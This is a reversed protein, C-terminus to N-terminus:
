EKVVEVPMSEPTLVPESGDVSMTKELRVAPMPSVAGGGVSKTTWWLGAIMLLLLAILVMVGLYWTVPKKGVLLRLLLALVVAIGIIWGVGVAMEPYFLKWWATSSMFSFSYVEGPLLNQRYRNIVGGGAMDLWSPGIMKTAVAPVAMDAQSMAVENFRESWNAPGQQRDRVYVGDPMYVGVGLYNVVGTGTGTTITITRGWWKKSTVDGVGYGIGLTIPTSEDLKAVKRAPVTLTIEQGVKKVEVEKWANNGEWICQVGVRRPCGNERYWGWVEGSTNDPLVYKYEGGENPMVVSDIRMWVRATGDEKIVYTYSHSEQNVPYGLKMDPAVMEQAEVRGALLLGALWLFKKMIEITASRSNGRM